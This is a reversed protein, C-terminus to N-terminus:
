FNDSRFSSVPIGEVSFIDGMVFDDFAYRVAVPNKVSDCTVIIRSRNIKAKAPYFKKDAGAMTFLDSKFEKNFVGMAVNTFFVTVTDNSIEIKNYLPPECAIGQFNYTKGLALLALREGAEKKKAPHINLKDGTDMLVAMGTKPVAQVSKLQAERLFASNLKKYGFPAIQCFYFPITDKQNWKARWGEVMSKFM